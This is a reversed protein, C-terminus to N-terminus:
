DAWKASTNACAEEFELVLTAMIPFVKWYTAGTAPANPYEMSSTAIAVPKIAFAPILASFDPVASLASSVFRAFGVLCTLPYM